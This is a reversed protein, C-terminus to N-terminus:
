SRIASSLPGTTRCCPSQHISTTTGPSFDELFNSAFISTNVTGSSGAAVEAVKQNSSNYVQWNVLDGGTLIRHGGAITSFTYFQLEDFDVPDVIPHDQDNKHALNLELHSGDAFFVKYRYGSIGGPGDKEITTGTVNSQSEFGTIFSFYSQYSDWLNINLNSNPM